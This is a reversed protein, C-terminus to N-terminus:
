EGVPTVVLNGVAIDVTETSLVRAKANLTLLQFSLGPVLSVGVSADFRDTLGYALSPFFVWYDSFRGQGQPMTRATPSLFLRTGNPDLPPPEDTETQALVTPAVLLLALLLLASRLM